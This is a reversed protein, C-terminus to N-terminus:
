VGRIGFSTSRFRDVLDEVAAGVIDGRDDIPPVPGHLSM